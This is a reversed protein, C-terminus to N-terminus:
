LGSIDIMTVMGDGPPSLMSVDPVLLAPEGELV